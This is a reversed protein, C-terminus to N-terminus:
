RNRMRPGVFNQHTDRGRGNVWRVQHEEATQVNLLLQGDNWAEFRMAHASLKAAYDSIDVRRSLPPAFSADCLTLHDVIDQTTAANLRQETM